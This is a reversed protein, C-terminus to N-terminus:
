ETLDSWTVHEPVEPVAAALRAIGLSEAATAAPPWLGAGRMDLIIRDRAGEWPPDDVLARATMWAGAEDRTMTETGSRIASAIVEAILEDPVGDDALARVTEVWAAGFAATGPRQQQAEGTLRRAMSLRALARERRRGWLADRARNVAEVVVAAVTDAADLDAPIHAGGLESPHGDPDAHGVTVWEHRRVVEVHLDDMGVPARDAVASRPSRAASRVLESLAEHTITQQIDLTM